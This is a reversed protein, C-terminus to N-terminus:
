TLSIIIQQAIAAYKPAAIAAYKTYNCHNATYDPTVAAFNNCCPEIVSNHKNPITRTHKQGNAPICTAAANKKGIAAHADRYKAALYVFDSTGCSTASLSPPSVTASRTTAPCEFLINGGVMTRIQARKKSSDRKEKSPSKEQMAAFIFAVTSERFKKGDELHCVLGYIILYSRLDVAMHM